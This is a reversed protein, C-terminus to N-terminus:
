APSIYDEPMFKNRINFIQADKEDKTLNTNELISYAQKFKDYNYM